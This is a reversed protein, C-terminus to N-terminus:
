VVMFDRNVKRCNELLNVTKRLGRDEMLVHPTFTEFNKLLNGCPITKNICILRKKIEAIQGSKLKNPQKKNM